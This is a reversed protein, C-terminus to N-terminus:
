RLRWDWPADFRGAWMGMRARQAFAEEDVYDMSYTRYAIAWGLVVMVANLSDTGVWCKAVTRGYQDTDYRRCHVPGATLAGQLTATAVAGCDYPFGDARLCTQGPEPADIGHLRIRVGAVDLTDGDVVSALGTIFPGPPLPNAVRLANWDVQTAQPTPAAAVQPAPQAVPAAVAPAQAGVRHAARVGVLALGFTGVGVCGIAALGVLALGGIVYNGLRPRPLENVPPM